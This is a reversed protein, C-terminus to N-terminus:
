FIASCEPLNKPRKARMKDAAGFRQLGTRAHRGADEDRNKQEREGPTAATWVVIRVRSKKRLM